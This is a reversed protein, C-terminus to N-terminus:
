LRFIIVESRFCNALSAESCSYEFCIPNLFVCLDYHSLSTVGIDLLVILFDFRFLTGTSKEVM